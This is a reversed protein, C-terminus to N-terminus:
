VALSEAYRLFKRTLWGYKSRKWETGDMNIIHASSAPWLRYWASDSTYGLHLLVDFNKRQADLICNRDYIFQGATGLSNEPDKCHIIEVGKFYKEQYPHNSSNYVAVEHGRKVLGESLFQAFQEFGGYQNPIGRTGMIGIYM